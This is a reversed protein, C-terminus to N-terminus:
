SEPPYSIFPYSLIIFSNPDEQILKREVCSVLLEILISFPRHCDHHDHHHSNVRQYGGGENHWRGTPNQINKTVM